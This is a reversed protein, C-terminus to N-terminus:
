GKIGRGRERERGRLCVCICVHEREIERVCMNKIVRTQQSEPNCKKAEMEDTPRNNIINTKLWRSRKAM